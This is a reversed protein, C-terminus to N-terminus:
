TVVEQRRGGSQAPGRDLVNNLDSAGAFQESEALAARQQSVADTAAPEAQGARATRMASSAVSIVHMIARSKRVEELVQTDSVSIHEIGGISLVVIVPVADERKQLERAAVSIAELLQGGP